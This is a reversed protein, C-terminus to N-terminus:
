RVIGQSIHILSLHQISARRVWDPTGEGLNKQFFVEGPEDATGVGHVWRKRTAPRNRAHPILTTAIEAYYRLVDAKTTGTEPYLVKDLNTIRLRHGGVTVTQASGNSGTGKPAM